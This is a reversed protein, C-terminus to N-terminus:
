LINRQNKMKNVNKTKKQEASAPWINSEPLKQHKNGPRSSSDTAGGGTERKLNSSLRINTIVTDIHPKGLIRPYQGHLAKNKWKEEKMSKMKSKFMHQLVKANESASKHEKNEFEPMTVEGKFKTANKTISHKAKSREHELV